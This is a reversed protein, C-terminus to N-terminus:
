IVSDSKIATELYTHFNQEVLQQVSMAESMQTFLSELLQAKALSHKLTPKAPKDDLLPKILSQILVLQQEQLPVLKIYPILHPYVKQRM